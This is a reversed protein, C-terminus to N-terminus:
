RMWEAYREPPTNREVTTRIGILQEDTFHRWTTPLITREEKDLHALYLAFLDNIM